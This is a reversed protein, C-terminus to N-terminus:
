DTTIFFLYASPQHVTGVAPTDTGEPISLQVIFVTRIGHSGSQFDFPPKHSRFRLDSVRLPYSLGIASGHNVRLYVLSIM